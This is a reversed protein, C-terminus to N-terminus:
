EQYYFTSLKASLTIHGEDSETFQLADVLSIRELGEIGLLFKRFSEYENAKIDIQATILNLQSPMSNDLMLGPSTDSEIQEGEDEVTTESPEAESETEPLMGDYHFNISEIKSGSKDAVSQLSLLLLNLQPNIPLLNVFEKLEAERQESNAIKQELAQVETELATLSNEEAKLEASLPNVFFVYLVISLIFLLVILFFFAGKKEHFLHNM